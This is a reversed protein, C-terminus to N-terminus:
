TVADHRRSALRMKDRPIRNRTCRFVVGKGPLPLYESIVLM